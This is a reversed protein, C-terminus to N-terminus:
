RAMDPRNGNPWRYTDNDAQNDFGLSLCGVQHQTSRGLLIVGREISIYTNGVILMVIVRKEAAHAVV